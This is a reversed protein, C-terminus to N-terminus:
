PTLDESSSKVIRNLRYKDGVKIFHATCEFRQSGEDDSLTVTVDAEIRDEYCTASNIIGKSWLNDNEVDYTPSYYISDDEDHLDNESSYEEYIFEPMEGDSFSSILNLYDSKKILLTYDPQGFNGYSTVKVNSFEDHFATYCMQVKYCRDDTYCENEQDQYWYAELWCYTIIIQMDDKTVGGRILKPWDADAIEYPEFAAETTVETAAETTVQTTAETAAETTAKTNKETTDRQVVETTKEKVAETTNSNVAEDNRSDFYKKALIGAAVGAAIVAVTSIVVIVKGATTGFFHKKASENEVEPGCIGQKFLEPKYGKWPDVSQKENTAVDIVEGNDPQLLITEEGSENVPGILTTDENPSPGTWIVRSDSQSVAQGNNLYLNSHHVAKNRAWMEFEGAGSIDNISTYIDDYVQGILTDAATQDGVIDLITRYIDQSTMAYFDTYNSFDGHQMQSIYYQLRQYDM